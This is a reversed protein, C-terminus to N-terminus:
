TGEGASASNALHVRAHLDAAQELTKLANFLNSYQAQLHDIGGYDPNALPGFFSGITGVASRNDRLSNVVTILRHMQDDNIALGMQKLQKVIDDAHANKNIAEHVPGKFIAAAAVALFQYVGVASKASSQTSM